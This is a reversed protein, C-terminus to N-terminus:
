QEIRLWLGHCSCQFELKLGATNVTWSPWYFLMTWLWPGFTFRGRKKNSIVQLGVLIEPDSYDTMPFGWFVCTTMPVQICYAYPGQIKQIPMTSLELYWKRCGQMLPKGFIYCKMPNVSMEDNVTNTYVCYKHIQTQTNAHWVGSLIFELMGTGLAKWFYIVHMTWIPDSDIPRSDARSFPFFLKHMAMQANHDANKLGILNRSPLIPHKSTIPEFNQDCFMHPFTFDSM